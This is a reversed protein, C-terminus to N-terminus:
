ALATSACFMMVFGYEAIWAPNLDGRLAAFVITPSSDLCGALAVACRAVVTGTMDAAKLGFPLTTKGLGGAVVVTAGRM